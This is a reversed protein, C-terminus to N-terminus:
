GWRDHEGTYGCMGVRPSNVVPLLMDEGCEHAIAHKKCLWGGGGWLCGTCVFEAPADCHSCLINPQTNRALLKVYEKGKDFEFESVVRLKLTTTTGFDYDYTFRGGPHFVEAVPVDMGYEKPLRDDSIALRLLESLIDGGEQETDAEKKDSEAKVYEHFDIIRSDTKSEEEVWSGPGAWSSSSVYHLDGITFASLHGCCELWIERLFRDLHYLQADQRVGLHLWYAPWFAGEAVVLYFKVLGKAPRKACRKRVCSKLHQSMSRKAIERGCIRCIGEKRSNQM